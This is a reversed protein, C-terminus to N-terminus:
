WIEINELEIGDAADSTPSTPDSFETETMRADVDESEDIVNVARLSVVDM